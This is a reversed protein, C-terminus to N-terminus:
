PLDIKVCALILIKPMKPELLENKNAGFNLKQLSHATFKELFHGTVKFCESKLPIIDQESASYIIVVAAAAMDESIVSNSPSGDLVMSLSISRDLKKRQKRLVQVM